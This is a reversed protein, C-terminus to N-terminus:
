VPQPEITLPIGTYAAPMERSSRKAESNPVASRGTKLTPFDEGLGQGSYVFGVPGPVPFLRNGAAPFKGRDRRDTNYGAGSHRSRVRSRGLPFRRGTM